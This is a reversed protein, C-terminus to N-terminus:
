ATHQGETRMADNLWYMRHFGPKEFGIRDYLRNAGENIRFVDLAVADCGWSRALAIGYEVMAAGVGHGRWPEAVIVHDLELYRGCWLKVGQWCGCMAILEAQVEALILSYNGQAAMQTLLARARTADILPNSALALPLVAELLSPELGGPEVPIHRLRWEPM